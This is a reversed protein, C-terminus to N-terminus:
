LKMKGLRRGSEKISRRFVDMHQQYKKDNRRGTFDLYQDLRMVLGADKILEKRARNIYTRMDQRAASTKASWDWSFFEGECFTVFRSTKTFHEEIRSFVKNLHLAAHDQALAEIITADGETPGLVIIPESEYRDHNKNSFIEVHYNPLTGATAFWTSKHLFVDEYGPPFLVSYRRKHLPDDNEPTTANSMLPGSMLKWTSPASTAKVLWKAQPPCEGLEEEFSRSSSGQTSVREVQDGYLSEDEDRRAESELKDITIADSYSPPAEQYRGALPWPMESETSETSESSTRLYVIDETTIIM